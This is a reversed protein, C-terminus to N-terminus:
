EDLWTLPYRGWEHVAARMALLVQEPVQVPIEGHADSLVFGGGRGAAAIAAKVAAEADAETWRRMEIGNLNGSVTIRGTAAAKVEALDDDNSAGLMAAGSRALADVIPLTRGSALAAAAPGDFRAITRTLLPLGVRAFLEHPVITASSVPDFYAVADAGAAFQANAWAVCFEENVRHLREALDPREYLLPLYRDFGMQMIPLSFPSIVVSVVMVEGAAAEALGRVAELQRLLQPSDAIRPPELSRIDEDARIVVDAANPPGDEFFRVTGGFAEHEIAGYGFAYLFDSGYKARLRLQGEVLHVPDALYEELTMGLERAAHMTVPLFFPVRDPERFAMATAAREASTMTATATM